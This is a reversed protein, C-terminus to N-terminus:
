QSWPFHNVYVCYVAKGERFSVAFATFISPQFLIDKGKPAFPWNEPGVNTKLSHIAGFLGLFFPSVLISVRFKLWAGVKLLAFTALKKHDFRHKAYCYRAFFVRCRTKCCGKQVPESM